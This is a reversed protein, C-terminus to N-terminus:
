TVHTIPTQFRIFIIVFHNVYLVISTMVVSCNDHCCILQWPLLGINIVVNTLQSILESLLIAWESSQYSYLLWSLSLTTWYPAEGTEISVSGLVM